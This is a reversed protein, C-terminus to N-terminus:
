APQSKRPALTGTALLAGLLIMAFGIWTSGAIADQMVFTGLVVAAIPIFFALNSTNAPGANRVLWFMLLVPAATSAIAVALVCAWILPSMQLSIAPDFGVALPVLIVSGMILQGATMVLPSIGTQRRAYINGIAYCFAALLTVLAGALQEALGGSVSPGVAALVGAFAIAVGIIRSLNLETDRTVFPVIVITFIPITAFLIGGLSSSIRTQGWAIAFYPIAATLIGLVLLPGWQRGLAPLRNGTALLVGGMFVAAIGVRLASLTLPPIVAVAINLFLFSSGFLTATLLLIAWHKASM